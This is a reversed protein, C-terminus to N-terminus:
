CETKKKRGQMKELDMIPGGQVYEMVMYMRDDSPDNIVEYLQRSQFFLSNNFQYFWCQQLLVSPSFRFADKFLDLRFPAVFM